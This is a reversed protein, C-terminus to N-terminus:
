FGSNILFDFRGPFYVKRISLVSSFHGIIKSTKSALLAEHVSAEYDSFEENVCLSTHECWRVSFLKKLNKTQLSYECSVLESM